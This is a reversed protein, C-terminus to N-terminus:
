SRSLAAFRIAEKFNGLRKTRLEEAAADWGWQEAQWDEELNALAWIADADADEELAALGACLSAALSTATTLASLAFDDMQSLYVRLKTLAEATQAQHMVGSTRELKIGHKAEIQKVLPEWRELQRRYLAEDPDARYCLTDTEAFTLLKTIALERGAGIIDIAHDAADRLLLTATDLEDGQSAWEDAMAKALASSPVIQPLGGVTKIARGDLTVQWGGDVKDTSVTEYFRKM